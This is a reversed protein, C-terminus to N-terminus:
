MQLCSNSHQAQTQLQVKKYSLVINISPIVGAQMCKCAKPSSPKSRLGDISEASANTNGAPINKMTFEKNLSTSTPLVAIYCRKLGEALVKHTAV